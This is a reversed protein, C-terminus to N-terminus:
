VPPIEIHVNVSHHIFLRGLHWRTRTHREFTTPCAPPVFSAVDLVVQAQFRILWHFLQIYSLPQLPRCNPSGWVVTMGVPIPLSFEAKAKRRKSLLSLLSLTPFSVPSKEPQPKGVQPLIVIKKPIWTTLIQPHFMLTNWHFQSAHWKQKNM